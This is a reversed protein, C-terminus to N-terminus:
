RISMKNPRLMTLAETFASNRNPKSDSFINARSNSFTGPGSPGVDSYLYLYYIGQLGMRPPMDRRQLGGSITFIRKNTTKTPVSDRKPQLMTLAESFV